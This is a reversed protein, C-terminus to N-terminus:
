QAAPPRAACRVRRGALLSVSSVVADLICACHTLAAPAPPPPPPLPARPRACPQHRLCYICTFSESALAPIQLLSIRYEHYEAERPSRSLRWCSCVVRFRVAATTTVQNVTTDCLDLPGAGGPRPQPPVKDSASGVCAAGVLVRALFMRCDGAADPRSYASGASYSADRAFYTGMGYAHVSVFSRNFGQQVIKHVSDAPAGHFLRMEKAGPAGQADMARRAAAFPAWLVYNQVREVKTVKLSGATKGFLGMVDRWEASDREVEVLAARALSAGSWTSPVQEAGGGSDAPRPTTAPRPGPTTPRASPLAMAAAPSPAAPSPAPAPGHRRVQRQFGSSIRTQRMARVDVLYQGSRLTVDGGTGSVFARELAMADIAGYPLWEGGNDWGWAAAPIRRVRRVKGTLVNTQQMGRVDVKYLGSRSVVAAQSGSGGGAWAREFLDADDWDYALWNAADGEVEWIVPGIRRVRRLYGTAKNKQQMTDLDIEFEKSERSFGVAKIGSFGALRAEMLTIYGREIVIAIAADYPTWGHDTECEWAFDGLRRLRRVKGSSPNVQMMAKVDVTYDVGNTQVTFSAPSSSQYQAELQRAASTEFCAWGGDTKVEWVLLQSDAAAAGQVGDEALSAMLQFITQLQTLSRRSSAADANESESDEGDSAESEDGSEQESNSQESPIQSVPLM